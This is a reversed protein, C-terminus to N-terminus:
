ERESIHSLHKSSFILPENDVNQGPLFVLDAVVDLLTDLGLLHCIHDIFHQHRRFADRLDLFSLLAFGGSFKKRTVEDDIHVQEILIVLQDIASPIEDFISRAYNTEGTRFVFRYRHPLCFYVRHERM